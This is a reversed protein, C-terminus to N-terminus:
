LFEFFLFVKVVKYFETQDAQCVANKMGRENNRSSSSPLNKDPLNLSPTAPPDRPRIQDPSNEIERRRKASRTRNPSSNNVPRRSSTGPRGLDNQTQDTSEIAKVRSSNKLIVLKKQIISFNQFEWVVSNSFRHSLRRM